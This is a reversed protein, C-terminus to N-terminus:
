EGLLIELQKELNNIAVSVDFHREAYARGNAGMIRRQDKSQCLVEVAKIFGIIDNSHCWLGCKADEEILQRVDTHIDTAALIPLSHMMYSLTRAPYNPITFRHDLLILGVDCRRVIQEYDERDMEGILTVNHLDKEDIFTRINVYETGGGIVLFHAPQYERLELLCKLFFDIGQPKGLNGGFLFLVKNDPVELKRVSKGAGFSREYQSVDVANPMITIKNPDIWPEHTKLYEINAKSMCGIIDSVRYLRREIIKFFCYVLSNERILGIDVANQPFIDKLMLYSRCGFKKKCFAVVKAFTIPPTPYLVLDFSQEDLHKKIASIMRPGIMLLVLGKKIFGGDFQDPVNVTLICCDNEFTLSDHADPSSDCKVITVSHGRRVLANILDAYIGSKSFSFRQTLYLINM